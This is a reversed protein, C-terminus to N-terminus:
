NATEYQYSKLLLEYSSELMVINIIKTYKILIIFVCVYDCKGVM